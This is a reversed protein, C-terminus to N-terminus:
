PLLIGNYDETWFLYDLQQHRSVAILQSGNPGTVILSGEFATTPVAGSMTLQSNSVTGLGVSFKAGIGLASNTVGSRVVNGNLDYFALSLTGTAIPSAGINQVSVSSAIDGAAQPNAKYRMYPFALKPAGQGQGLFGTQYGPVTASVKAVVVGKGGGSVSIYGSGLFGPNPVGVANCPNISKKASPGIDTFVQNGVEVNSTNLWHATATVTFASTNQFAFVSTANQATPGTPAYGCLSTPLYITSAASALPVAEYGYAKGDTTFFEEATGVVLGPTATGTRVAVVRVSGNFNVAVGPITAPTRSDFFRSANAPITATIVTAAGSVPLFTATIDVSQGEVNQVAFSSKANFAGNLFTPLYLDSTADSSRFGTALIRNTTNANPIQITSAVVDFDASLVASGKFNALLGSVSGVLISGSGYAPVAIPISITAQPTGNLEPYFSATLNGAVATPNQYVIQSTFTATVAQASVRAGAAGFTAALVLGSLVGARALKRINM